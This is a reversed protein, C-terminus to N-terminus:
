KAFLRGRNSRSAQIEMYLGAGGLGSEADILVIIRCLLQVVLELHGILAGRLAIYWHPRIASRRLRYCRCVVTRDFHLLESSETHIM